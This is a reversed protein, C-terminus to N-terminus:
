AAWTAFRLPHSFAVCVVKQGSPALWHGDTDSSTIEAKVRFADKSFLVKLASPIRFLISIEGELDVDEPLLLHAGFASLAVTKTKGKWRSGSGTRGAISCPVHLTMEYVVSEAKRDKSNARIATNEDSARRKKTRMKEQVFSALQMAQDGGKDETDADAIGAVGPQQRSNSTRYDRLM